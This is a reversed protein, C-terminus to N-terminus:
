RVEKSMTLLEESQTDLALLLIENRQKEKKLEENIINLEYYVYNKM